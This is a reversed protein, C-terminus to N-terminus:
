PSAENKFTTKIFHVETIFPIKGRVSELVLLKLFFTVFTFIQCSNLHKQKTINRAFRSM